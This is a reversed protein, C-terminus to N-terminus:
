FMGWMNEVNHVDWDSIDGTFISNDFMSSMSQVNSVNWKSIDGKFESGQFMHSMDLVSKTNWRSIDPSIRANLFLSSMDEVNSVDWENIDCKLSQCDMFMKHMRKVHSMDWKSIDGHFHMTRFLEHMDTVNTVDLWNLDESSNNHVLQYLEDYDKVKYKFKYGNKLNDRYFELESDTLSKIGGDVFVRTKVRLQAIKKFIRQYTDNLVVDSLTSDNRINNFNFDETIIHRKNTNM